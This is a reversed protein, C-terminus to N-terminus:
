TLGQAQALAAAGLMIIRETQSIAREQALSAIGQGSCSLQM